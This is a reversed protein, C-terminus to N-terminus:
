YSTDTTVDGSEGSADGGEGATAKKAAVLESALAAGAIGVAWDVVIREAGGLALAPLIATLEEDPQTALPPQQCADTAIPVRRLTREAPDDPAAPAVARSM